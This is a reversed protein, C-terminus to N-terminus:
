LRLCDGNKDLAEAEATLDQDKRVLQALEDTGAAFRAALKSVANAAASASARQVIEYSDALAQAASVLNEVQSAFLVPFAHFKDVTGQSLTRRIIPLADAYRGQRRYLGALNNLSLAVDPHDRGLAKESIALSRQFLPEANAYRGQIRYLGALNNLSNAVDPHDRGLAKESIVLSRQFLVEADAYRGQDYYLGALNNLSNAVDPHDRGLAKERIALSRQYLPEADAYRGLSDHLFALSNLATAVDPHDRALAKQYIAM